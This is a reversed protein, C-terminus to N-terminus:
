KGEIRPLYSYYNRVMDNENVRHKQTISFTSNDKACQMFIFLNWTVRIVKMENKQDLLRWARTIVVPIFEFMTFAQRIAKVM